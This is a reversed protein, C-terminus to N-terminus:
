RPDLDSASRPVRRTALAVLLSSCALPGVSDCRPYYATVEDPRRQVAVLRPFRPTVSPARLEEARELWGHPPRM